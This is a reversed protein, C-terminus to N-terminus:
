AVRSARTTLMMLTNDQQKRNGWRNCGWISLLGIIAILLAIAIIATILSPGHPGSDEPV